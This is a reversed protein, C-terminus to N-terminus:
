HQVSREEDSWLAVGLRGIVLCLVSLWAQERVETRALWCAM